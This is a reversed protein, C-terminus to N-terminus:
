YHLVTYVANRAYQRMLPVTHVSSDFAYKGRVINIARMLSAVGPYTESGHAPEVGHGGGANLITETKTRPSPPDPATCAKLILKTVFFVYTGFLDRDTSESYESLLRETDTFAGVFITMFEMGAMWFVDENITDDMAMVLTASTPIPDSGPSMDFFEFPLVLIPEKRMHPSWTIKDHLAEYIIHAATGWTRPDSFYFLGIADQRRLAVKAYVRFQQLAVAGPQEEAKEDYDMPEDFLPGQPKELDSDLPPTELDLLKSSSAVPLTEVLITGKEKLSHTSYRRISGALSSKSSPLPINNWPEYAPLTNQRVPSKMENSHISGNMDQLEVPQPEAPKAKSHHLYELFGTWSQKWSWPEKPPSVVNQFGPNNLHTCYCDNAVSIVYGKSLNAFFFCLIEFFIVWLHSSRAGIYFALFGGGIAFLTLLAQWTPIFDEMSLHQGVRVTNPALPNFSLRRRALTSTFWTNDVLMWTDAFGTKQIDVYVSTRLRKLIWQASYHGAGLLAQGGLLLAAAQPTQWGLLKTASIAVFAVPVVTFAINFAFVILANQELPMSPGIWHLEVMGSGTRILPDESEQMNTLIDTSWVSECTKAMSIEGRRDGCNWVMRGSITSMRITEIFSMLENFDLSGTHNGDPGRQLHWRARVIASAAVGSNRSKPQTTLGGRKSFRPVVGYLSSCGLEAAADLIDNEGAGLLDKLADM